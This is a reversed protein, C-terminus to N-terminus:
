RTIAPVYNMLQSKELEVTSFFLHRSHYWVLPAFEVVIFHKSFKRSFRLHPRAKFLTIAFKQTIKDVNVSNSLQLTIKEQLDFIRQVSISRLCFPYLMKLIVASFSPYICYTHERINPILFCIRYLLHVRSLTNFNNSHLQLSPLKM